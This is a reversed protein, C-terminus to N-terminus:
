IKQKKLKALRRETERKKITERKDFKSKSKALAFELKILHKKIYVSLPIIQLGSASKGILTRIESKKLLLKRNRRPDYKKEATNKFKPINANLLWAELKGKTNQFIRIYADTINIQGSKVSKVETGSLVLGAEFKDRLQYRLCAKKNKAIIKM